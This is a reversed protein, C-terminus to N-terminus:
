TPPRRASAAPQPDALLTLTQTEHRPRGLILAPAGQQRRDELELDAYGATDFHSTDAGYISSHAGGADAATKRTAASRLHNGPRSSAVAQGGGSWASPKTAASHHRARRLKDRIGFYGIVLALAFLFSCVGAMQLSNELSSWSPADTVPCPLRCPACPRVITSIDVPKAAAAIASSSASAVAPTTTALAPESSTATASVTATATQTFAPQSM